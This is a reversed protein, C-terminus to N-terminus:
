LFFNPFIHSFPLVPLSCEWSAGKSAGKGRYYLCSSPFPVYGVSLSIYQTVESFEVIERHLM